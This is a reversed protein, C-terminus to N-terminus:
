SVASDFSSPTSSPPLFSNPAVLSRQSINAWRALSAVAAHPPHSRFLTAKTRAPLLLDDSALVLPQPLSPLPPMPATTAARRSNDSRALGCVRVGASPPGFTTTTSLSIMEVVIAAYQLSSATSHRNSSKREGEAVDLPAPPPPPARGVGSMVTLEAWSWTRSNWRRPTTGTSCSTVAKARPPPPPSASNALAARAAVRVRATLSSITWARTATPTSRLARIASASPTASESPSPAPFSSSSLFSFAWALCRRDRAEAERPRRRLRHPLSSILVLRQRPVASPLASDAVTRGDMTRDIRRYRDSAATWSCPQAVRAAMASRFGALARRMTSSPPGISTRVAMRRWGATTGTWRCPDNATRFMEDRRMLIASASCFSPHVEVEGLDAAASVAVAVVVVVGTSTRSVKRSRPASDTRRSM